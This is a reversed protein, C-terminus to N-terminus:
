CLFSRLAPMICETVKGSFTNIHLIAVVSVYLLLLVGPSSAEVHLVPRAQGHPKGTAQALPQTSAQHALLVEVLSCVQEATSGLEVGVGGQRCHLLLHSVCVNIILSSLHSIVSSSTLSSSSIQAAM